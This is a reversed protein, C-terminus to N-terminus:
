VFPNLVKVGTPVVDSANRTVLTLDHVLATAALLGDVPPVPNPVGLHGWRDAVSSTIPLIRNEYTRLLAALWDDLRVAADPDRRRIREVGRRLEGIVLVSLFLDRDDVADFWARVGANMRARKRAESIVNTDVLYSM